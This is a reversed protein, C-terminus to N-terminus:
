QQPQQPLPMPANVQMRFEDEIREEPQENGIALIEARVSYEGSTEFLNGRIHYTGTVPDSDHPGYMSIGNAATATTTENAATTAGANTANNILEIQLDNDLVFFQESFYQNDTWRSRDTFCQM